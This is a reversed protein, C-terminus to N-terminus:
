YRWPSEALVMAASIMLRVSIIERLLDAPAGALIPVALV